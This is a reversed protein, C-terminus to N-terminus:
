RGSRGAAIAIFWGNSLSLPRKKLWSRRLATVESLRACVAAREFERSHHQRSAAARNVCGHDIEPMSVFLSFVVVNAKPVAAMDNGPRFASEAKARDHWREVRAACPVVM